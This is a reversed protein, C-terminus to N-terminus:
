HRAADVGADAITTPRIRAALMAARDNDALLAVASFLVLTTALAGAAAVWKTLVAHNM